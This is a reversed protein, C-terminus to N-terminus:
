NKKCDEFMNLRKCRIEFFGETTDVLGSYSTSDLSPNLPQSAAVNVDQTNIMLNPFQNKVIDIDNKENELHRCVLIKLNSMARLELIKTCSINDISLDLEELCPMLHLIIETVTNDSISTDSSTM